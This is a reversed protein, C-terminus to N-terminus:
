FFMVLEMSYISAKNINRGLVPRGVSLLASIPVMFKKQKYWDITSFEISGIISHADKVSEVKEMLRYRSSEYLDGSYKTGFQYQYSYGFGFSTAIPMVTLQMSSGIAAIDGLKRSLVEKDPSLSEGEAVPIRKEIQDGVQVTYGSFINVKSKMGKQYIWSDSEVLQRDFAIKSGLDWQGDGTPLDLAKDANPKIGTPLTVDGAVSLSNLDNKIVHYKSVLRVDGLGKISQEPPIPQYGLSVLKKNVAGGLDNFTKRATDAASPSAADLANVFKVGDNNKAFTTKANANINYIPVAAGVTLKENLGYAFVPAMVNAFVNVEGNINGASGSESLGQGELISRMFVQDSSSKTALVDAWTV